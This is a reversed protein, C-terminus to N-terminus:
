ICHMRIKTCTIYTHSCPQTPAHIHSLFTSMLYWRRCCTKLCHRERFGYIMLEALHNLELSWTEVEGARNDCHSLTLEPVQRLHASRFGPVWAEVPLWKRLRCYRLNNTRGPEQGEDVRESKEKQPGAKYNPFIIHRNGSSSLHGPLRFTVCPFSFGDDSLMHLLALSDHTTWVYHGNM